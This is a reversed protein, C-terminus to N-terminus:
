RVRSHRQRHERRAQTRSGGHGHEVDHGPRPAGAGVARVADLFGFGDLPTFGFGVRNVFAGKITRGTSLTAAFRVRGKAVKDEPTKVGDSLLDASNGEESDGFASLVEDRDVGFNVFRGATLSGPAFHITMESFQGDVAPAPAPEAFTATVTAPDIGASVDGVTFPFGSAEPAAPDFARPDWALGPKLGTPNGRAADLTLSTVSGPGSYRIRFTNPDRMSLTPGGAFEEGPEAVADIRLRGDRSTASAADPDLDHPFTSRELLGRMATPSLSRGGGRRDLVLAAIAAAHPASASTGFFNPFADDDRITDAVFFTTNGGDTASIEPKRRIEPRALRNGNADFPFVLDGGSSTFPEPIEPTFPNYAGVATAGAAAPHGFISEALPQRFEEIQWPGFMVYRIREATPSGPPPTTARAIVVQVPDGNGIIEALEIPRGSLPNNDASAGLFHGNADFFLLNYDTTVRTGGVILKASMTVAGPSGSVEIRYDGTVPLTAAFQQPSEEVNQRQLITGDPRFVTLVMVGTTTSGTQAPDVYDSKFFVDQGATGSLTFTAPAADTIEGTADLLTDGFQPGAADFPDDWQFTMFADGSVTTTQAIDVGPGPDFDHFGGAYLSPDVTSLDLGAKAADASGPAVPSFTSSWSQQEGENGASSFYHVGKAAVDDVAQAVQGDEFMPEDFYSVDDAIVDAGCGSAPDALKRINNAFETESLFATAFCLKAKPAVDHVIQLMGRGEDTALDPFDFDEVDVVPKANLPNGPGPLDGSAIDDAAHDALPDGFVDFQATDFSDSLVGVTIGSGDVGRPLRDVREQQVGQSTVAGVHTRAKVAQMVAGVGPATAIAAVKDLAVFGTLMGTRYQADRAVTQLGLGQLRQQTDALGAGPALRVDVLVRGLSDRIALRDQVLRPGRGLGATPAPPPSVLRALGNGLNQPLREKAGATGPAAVAVLATCVGVLRFCGRRSRTAM